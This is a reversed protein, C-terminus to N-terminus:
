RVLLWERLIHDIPFGPQTVTLYRYYRWLRDVKQVNYTICKREMWPATTSYHKLVAASPFLSSGFFLLFSGRTAQPFHLVFFATVPDPILENIKSISECCIRGCGTASAPPASFAPQPCCRCMDLLRWTLLFTSHWGQQKWRSWHSGTLRCSRWTWGLYRAWTMDVQKRSSIWLEEM